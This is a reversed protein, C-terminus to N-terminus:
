NNSSYKLPFNRPNNAEGPSSYSINIMLDALFGTFFIQLGSIVLLMGFILLPRRGISHGLLQYTFLGFLILGGVLALSGGLNGFFHLPRNSYKVLFIMTFLDPLNKWVKSFGYKSKGFNRADHEVIVEDVIYGEQYLLLPIFRYLGGYFNLSKISEKTFLKFGCDIDHLKLGFLIGILYNFLKSIIVMKQKDKREKRWGCVVDAGENHRNIFKQIESPKDQLDADMTIIVEGKAQSFGFSLADGKGRHRKFSFIRLHKNKQALSKLVSLTKDSSGDDIFIVEYDKSVRPLHKMIEDYFARIGDEEDRAPVIVSIM